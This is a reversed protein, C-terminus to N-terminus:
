LNQLRSEILKGIKELQVFSLVDKTVIIQIRITESKDLAVIISFLDSKYRYSGKGFNNTIEFDRDSSSPNNKFYEFDDKAKEGEAYLSIVVTSYPASNGQSVTNFIIKIDVQNIGMDIYDIVDQVEADRFGTLERAEDNSILKEASKLNLVKTVVDGKALSSIFITCLVVFSFIVINKQRM